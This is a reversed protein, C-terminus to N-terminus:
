RIESTNSDENFMINQMKEAATKDASKLAHSYINLTTSTNSHGLRASLAKINLGANILITASTHRLQHFTIKKLGKRRLFKGFWGSPTSPHMPLGNWQTFMFDTDNWMEGCKLRNENQEKKYEKIIDMVSQPLAIIRNSSENKTDKTFTGKNVLYQNARVIEITNNKFDVCEWKLGMLEGLRLGSALTIMIACRYKLEEDQLAEILQKVEEENYYNAERKKIKPPDVNELPNIPILQWKVATGFINKLLRHYHSITNNSLRGKKGDKRVSNEQLLNYFDIIHMPKVRSLPLHGLAPIIRLELLREYEYITKPALKPKAYDNIWRKSFSELTLKSPEVYSNSEIETIFKALEKKAETKNKCKVTKTYKKRKGGLGYGGSVILRYSNEGRKEISGAM